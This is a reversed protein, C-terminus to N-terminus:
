GAALRGRITEALSVSRPIREADLPLEQSSFKAIVIGNRRDVFLFQGHIGFGFLTPAAGLLM